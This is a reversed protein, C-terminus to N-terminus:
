VPDCEAQKERCFILFEDYNRIYDAIEYERDCLVMLTAGETLYEQTAWIGPSLLLGTTASDLLWESRTKGNDCTVRIGGHVCVLLQTCRKHAHDGGRRGAASSVTFVRKIGFPVASGAEYVFLRGAADGHGPFILMIPDAM